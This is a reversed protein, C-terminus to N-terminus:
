LPSRSHECGWPHRRVGGGDQSLRQERCGRPRIHGRKEVKWVPVSLTLGNTEYQYIASRSNSSLDACLRVLCYPLQWRVRATQMQPPRGPLEAGLHRLQGRLVWMSHPGREEGPVPLLPTDSM